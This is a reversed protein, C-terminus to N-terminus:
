SVADPDSLRQKPDSTVISESPEETGQGLVDTTFVAGVGTTAATTSAVSRYITDDGFRERKLTQGAKRLRTLAARVTHAQWGTAAILGALSAGTPANVMDRLLASKTRKPPVDRTLADTGVKPRDEAERQGLLDPEVARRKAKGMGVVDPADTPKKPSRGVKGQTQRQNTRTM